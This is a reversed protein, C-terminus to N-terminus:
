GLTFLVLLFDSFSTLFVISRQGLLHYRFLGLQNNEGAPHVDEGLSEQLREL